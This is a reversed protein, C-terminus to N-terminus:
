RQMARQRRIAPCRRAAADRRQEGNDARRRHVAGLGPRQCRDGSLSPQPQWRESRRRAHFQSDRGQGSQRGSRHGNGSGAGAPGDIRLSESRARDADGAARAQGADARRVRGAAYGACQRRGRTMARRCSPLAPLAPRSRRSPSALVCRHRRQNAVRHGCHRHVAGDQREACRWQFPIEGVGSLQVRGHIQTNAAPSVFVFNEASIQM